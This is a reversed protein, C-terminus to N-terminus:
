PPPAPLTAFYVGTGTLNGPSSSWASMMRTGDASVAIGRVLLDRGTAQIGNSSVDGLDVGTPGYYIFIDNLAYYGDVGGIVLGNWVCQMSDPYNTGPLTQIVQFTAVSTAPFNYPAGSATYIRDGSASFCAEGGRGQATSVPVAAPQVVLTGGGLASRVLRAATGSENALLSQDPSRAYGGAYPPTAAQANTFQAGTAIDYSRVSPTILMPYGNPRIYAVASGVPLGPALATSDYARQIAGTAPDVSNVVLNTSDFVFLSLGDDSFALASSNAAVGALTRLLARSNVDYIGIDAGGTSIAVIPEVPSTALANAALTVPGNAPATNSVYLGVRISQQNEVSADPSSITVTAFQTADLPRGAPNATLVLDGGTTGSPTVSLWAQDSSATWPANTRGIASLVKVTRTLVDHGAIRSLGVGAATVVLRNAEINFTVNRDQVFAIGNVTATVHVHGTYTGGRVVSPDVSLNVSTPASGVTGATQDVHLWAGGADTSVAVAYPYIGQGTQLSITVPVPTLAARGDSGGFSYSPEAVTLSAPTVTLTIAVSAADDPELNSVAQVHGTYSGPALGTPDIAAAVSGDGSQTTSPVHLWAADSTVTWQRAAAAVAITAV